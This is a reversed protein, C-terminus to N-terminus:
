LSSVCLLTPVLLSACCTPLQCRPGGALGDVVGGSAAATLLVDAARRRRRPGGTDAVPEPTLIFAEIRPEWPSPDTPAAPKSPVAGPTAAAARGTAAGAAGTAPPAGAPSGMPPPASGPAALLAGGATQVSPHMDQRHVPPLPPHHVPPAQQQQCGGGEGTGAATERVAAAAAASSDSSYGGRGGRREGGAAPEPARQRQGRTWLEARVRCLSRRLKGGLAAAAAARAARYRDAEAAAAQLQLWEPEEPDETTLAEDSEGAPVPAGKQELQQPGLSATPPECGGRGTAESGEPNLGACWLLFSSQVDSLPGRGGGTPAEGGGAALPGGLAARASARASAPRLPAGGTAAQAPHVAPPPACVAAGRSKGAAALLPAGAPTLASGGRRTPPGGSGGGSLGIASVRAAMEPVIGGPGKGAAAAAATAASGGLPPGAPGLAGRGSIRAGDARATLRPTARSLLLAAHATDAGVHKPAEAGGRHGWRATLLAADAAAQFTAPAAAIATQAVARGGRLPSSPRNILDPSGGGRPATAGAAAASAARAAAPSGGGRRARCAPPAPEIGASRLLASAKLRLEARFLAGANGANLPLARLVRAAARARPGHPCYLAVRILTYLGHRCVALQGRATTAANQLAVLALAGERGSFDDTCGAGGGACGDKGGAANDSSCREEGIATGPNLDSCFPHPSCEGGNGLQQQLSALPRDLWAQPLQQRARVGGSRGRAKTREPASCPLLAPEQSATAQQQQKSQQQKDKQRQKQEPHQQRQLEAYAAREARQVELLPRVAGARVLAEAGRRGAGSVAALARAAAELLPVDVRAAAFAVAAASTAAASAPGVDASDSPPQTEAVTENGSGSLARRLLQTLLKAAAEVSCDGGVTSSGTTIAVHAIAGAAAQQLRSLAAAVAPNPQQPPQLACAATLQEWLGLSLLQKQLSADAASLHWCCTVAEARLELCAAASAAGAPPELGAAELLVELAPVACSAEADDAATALSGGATYLGDQQARLPLGWWGTASGKYLADVGPPLPRRAARGAAADQLLLWAARVGLTAAQLPEDIAAAASDCTAAGSDSAGAADTASAKSVAGLNLRPVPAAGGKTSSHEDAALAASSGCGDGSVSRGSRPGARPGQRLRALAPPVWRRLLGPWRPDGALRKRHPLHLALAWLTAAGEAAAAMSCPARAGAHDGGGDSAHANADLQSFILDVAEPGLPEESMALLQCAASAVRRRAALLAEVPAAGPGQSCPQQQTGAASPAAAMAAGEAAPRSGLEQQQEAGEEGGGDFGQSSGSGAGGDSVGAALGALPELLGHAHLAPRLVGLFPPRPLDSGGRAGNTSGLSPAGHAESAPPGTLRSRWTSSGNAPASCRASLPQLRGGGAGLGGRMPTSSPELSVAALRLAAGAALLRAHAADAGAADTLRLAAALGALAPAAAGIAV